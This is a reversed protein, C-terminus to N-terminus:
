LKTARVCRKDSDPFILFLCSEDILRNFCGKCSYQNHVYSSYITFHVYFLVTFQRIHYFDSIVNINM